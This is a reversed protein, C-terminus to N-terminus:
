NLKHYIAKNNISIEETKELSFTAGSGTGIICATEKDSSFQVITFMGNKQNVSLVYHTGSQDEGKGIFVPLEEYKHNLNDIVIQTKQCVVPKFTQVPQPVVPKVDPKLQPTPVEDTPAASSQSAFLILGIMM